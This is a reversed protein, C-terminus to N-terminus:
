HLTGAEPFSAFREIDLGPRRLARTSLSYYSSKEAFPFSGERKAFRVCCHTVCPPHTLDQLSNLRLPNLAQRSKGVSDTPTLDHFTM